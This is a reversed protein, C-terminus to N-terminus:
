KIELHVADGVVLRKGAQNSSVNTNVSLRYWHDFCASDTWSPKTKARQDIFTEYFGDYPAGSAPNKMPVSCRACPNSSQISVNGVQILKPSEGDVFVKDEWFAPATSVELNIRFRARIDDLALSPYWSAVAQLSAQSVVTPGSANMDDPFGQQQDEKLFVTKQLANSFYQSLADVDHLSFEENDSFRVRRATLDFSPRLLFIRKNNKGNILRGRKDVLAWRRDDSLTGGQTIEVSDLAVGPLAKIPYVFVKSLRM